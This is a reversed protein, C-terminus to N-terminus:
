KNIKKWNNTFDATQIDGPKSTWMYIDTLIIDVVKYKIFRQLIYM